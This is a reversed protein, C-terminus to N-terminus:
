MKWKAGLLLFPQLYNKKVLYPQCYEPILEFENAFKMVLYPYGGNCGQNYYSCDLAHQFSLNVDHGYLIKLRAEIMKLTSVTYCSGCDGQSAAPKLVHKWDFNLPFNYIRQLTNKPFIPKNVQAQSFTDPKSNINRNLSKFRMMGAFKNLESLSKKHFNSYTGAQWSKNKVYKNLNTAYTKHFHYNIATKSTVTESSELFSSFSELPIISDSNIINLNEKKTTVFTDYSPDVNMKLAKYCGRQTKNKNTYWGILTSYCKSKYIKIGNFSSEITYKSFAFFSLDDFQIDFGEDYVM